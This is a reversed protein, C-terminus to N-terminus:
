IFFITGIDYLPEDSLSVAEKGNKRCFLSIKESDPHNELFGCFYVFREDSGSAGGLFGTDYGPLLVNGSSIRLVDIDSAEAARAISVDSTIIARESVKVTACKTYGQAVKVIDGHAINHYFESKKCFIREGLPLANFVIDNPYEASIDVKCPAASLGSVSAILDLERRALEYYEESFYLKDYFFMLMDPHSAIPEALRSFPPMLILEFGRAELGEAAKEPIRKDVIAYKM